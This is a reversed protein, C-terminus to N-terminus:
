SARLRVFALPRTQELQAQQNSSRSLPTMSCVSKDAARAARAPNPWPRGHVAGRRAWAPLADDCPGALRGAPM